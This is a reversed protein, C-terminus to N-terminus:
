GLVIVASSRKTGVDEEKRPPTSPFIGKNLALCLPLHLQHQPRHVFTGRRPSWLMWTVSVAHHLHLDNQVFSAGEVLYGLPFARIVMELSALLPYWQYPLVRLGQVRWTCGTSGHLSLFCSCTVKRNKLWPLLVQAKEALDLNILSFCARGWRRM